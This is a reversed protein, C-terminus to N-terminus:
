FLSRLGAAADARFRRFRLSGREGFARVRAWTEGVQVREGIAVRAVSVRERKVGFGLGIRIERAILLAAVALLAFIGLVFVLGSRGGPPDLFPIPSHSPPKKDVAVASGILAAGLATGIRDVADNQAKGRHKPILGAGAAIRTGLKKLPATPLAHSFVEGVHAAVHSVANAGEDIATPSVTPASAPGGSSPAAHHGGGSVKGGGTSAGGGAGAGAKSGGSRSPTSARSTHHSTAGAPSATGTSGSGTSSGGGSSAESGSSSSGGSKPAEAQPTTSESAPTTMTPPTTVPTETPTTTTETPSTVTETPTEIVPPPEAPTTIEGGVEDALASQPGIRLLGAAAASAFVALLGLLM